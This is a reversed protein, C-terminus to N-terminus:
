KKNKKSNKSFFMSKYKIYWKKNDTKVYNNLILNCLSDNILHKKLYESRNFTSSCFFCIYPSFGTHLIMHRNLEYKRSFINMCINCTNKNYNKDNISKLFKNHNKMYKRIKLFM